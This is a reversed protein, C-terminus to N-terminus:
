TLKLNINHKTKFDIAEQKEMSTLKEKLIDLLVALRIREELQKKDIHRMKNVAIDKLFIWSYVQNKRSKIKLKQSPKFIFKAQNNIGDIFNSFYDRQECDTLEFHNTRLYKMRIAEDIIEDKRIENSNDQAINFLTRVDDEGIIMAPM